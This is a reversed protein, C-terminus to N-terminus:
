RCCAKNCQVWSFHMKIYKLVRDANRGGQQGHRIHSSNHPQQLLHWVSLSPPFHHLHVLHCKTWIFSFFRRRMCMPVTWLYFFIYKNAKKGNKCSFSLLVNMHFIWVDSCFDTIFDSFPRFAEETRSAQRATQGPLPKRLFRAIDNNTFHWSM